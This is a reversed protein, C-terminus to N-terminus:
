SPTRPPVQTGGTGGWIRHNSTQMYMRMEKEGLPRAMDPHARVRGWVTMMDGYWEKRSSEGMVDYQALFVDQLSKLEELLRLLAM